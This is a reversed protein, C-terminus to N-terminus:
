LIMGNSINQCYKRSNQKPKTKLKNKLLRSLTAENVIQLRFNSRVPRVRKGNHLLNILVILNYCCKQWSFNRKERCDKRRSQNSQSTTERNSIQLRFNSRVPRARKGNHLLSILVTLNYCYKQWSFNRKERCDKRRSQNSQSPTERNSIQLRFNSRVPRARKGNHLLNILVTLNHCYKQSPPSLFALM